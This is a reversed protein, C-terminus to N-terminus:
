PLKGGIAKELQARAVWYDRWAEIYSREAELENQKVLLLDYTGKLMFNYHELTLAVIRRRQPLLEDGYLKALERNASLLAHAERVESRIDTTLAEAQRQSQRLQATLKALAPQGQDFVPLSLSLTPGTVRQRDTERETDVGISVGTPLFRTSRNLSAARDLLAVQQRAAALDLRQKVALTELGELAIETEPLPPLQTAIKWDSNGAM